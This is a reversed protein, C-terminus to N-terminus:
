KGDPIVRFIAPPLDRGNGAMFKSVAENVAERSEDDLKVAGEAQAQFDISTPFDDAWEQSKQVIGVLSKAVQFYFSALQTLQLNGRLARAQAANRFLKVAKRAHDMTNPASPEWYLIESRLREVEQTSLRHSMGIWGLKPPAPHWGAEKTFTAFKLRTISRDGVKDFVRYQGDYHPLENPSFPEVKGPM